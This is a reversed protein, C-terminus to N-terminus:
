QPRPLKAPHVKSEWSTPDVCDNKKGDGPANIVEADVGTVMVTEPSIFVHQIAFPMVNDGGETLTVQLGCKKLFSRTFCSSCGRM